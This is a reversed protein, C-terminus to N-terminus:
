STANRQHVSGTQRDWVPQSQRSSISVQCEDKFLQNQVVSNKSNTLREINSRKIFETQRLLQRHVPLRQAEDLTLQLQRLTRVEDVRPQVISIFTGWRYQRLRLKHAVDRLNRQTIKRPVTSVVGSGHGIITPRIETQRVEFGVSYRM